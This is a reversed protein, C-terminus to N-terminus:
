RARPAGFGGSDGYGVLVVQSIMPLKDPGISGAMEVKGERKVGGCM